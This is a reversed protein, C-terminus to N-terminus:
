STLIYALSDRIQTHKNPMVNNCLLYKVHTYSRYIDDHLGTPDSSLSRKKQGKLAFAATYHTSSYLSIVRVYCM